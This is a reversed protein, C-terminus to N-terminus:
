FMQFNKLVKDAAVQAGWGQIYCLETLWWEEKPCKNSNYMISCFIGKTDRM